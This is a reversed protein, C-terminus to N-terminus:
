VRLILFFTNFKFNYKFILFLLEHKVYKSFNDVSLKLIRKAQGGLTFGDVRVQSIM